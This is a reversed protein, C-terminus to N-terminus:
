GVIKKLMTMYTGRGWLNGLQAGALNISNGHVVLIRCAFVIITEVVKDRNGYM